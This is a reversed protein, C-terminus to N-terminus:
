KVRLWKVGDWVAIYANQDSFKKLRSRCLSLVNPGDLTITSGNKTDKVIYYSMSRPISKDIDRLIDPSKEMLIDRIDDGELKGGSIKDLLKEREEYAEVRAKEDYYADGKYGM